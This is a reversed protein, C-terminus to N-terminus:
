KSDKAKARNIQRLRRANEQTKNFGNPYREKNSM